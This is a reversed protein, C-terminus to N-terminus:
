YYMQINTLGIFRVTKLAPVRIGYCSYTKRNECSIEWSKTQGGRSDDFDANRVSKLVQWDSCDHSGVVQFTKPALNWDPGGPSTFSIKALTFNFNFHYWVTAPFWSCTWIPGSGHDAQPRFALDESFHGTGNSAGPTGDYTM